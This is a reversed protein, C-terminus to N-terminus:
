SNRKRSRRRSPKARVEEAGPRIILRLRAASRAGRSGYRACRAIALAASYESLALDRDGQMDHIRGLYVYSWALISPEVAAGRKAIAVVKEFQEQARDGKGQLISAIALGYQARPLDPHSALVAASFQRRRPAM